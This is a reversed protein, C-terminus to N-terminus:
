MEGGVGFSVGAARAPDIPIAGVALMSGERVMGLMNSGMWPEANSM